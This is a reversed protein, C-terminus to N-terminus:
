FIDEGEPLSAPMGPLTQMAPHGTYIQVYQAYNRMVERVYGRTEHYPISDVFEDAACDKCSDLWSNVAQPGGNYAAVALFPNADYYRLLKDLYYSGYAINVEPEALDRVDFREDHLLTAVKLATYPMLQMLGQAGVGSRAEKNYYSEARMVSLILFPSLRIKAAM